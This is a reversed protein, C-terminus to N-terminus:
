DEEIDVKMPVPNSKIVKPLEIILFGNRYNAKVKKHDVNRPIVIKREFLGYHIEMQRFQCPAKRCSDMRKGRVSLTRDALNIQVDERSVGAMELRVFISSETEYIDTNPVWEINSSGSSIGM